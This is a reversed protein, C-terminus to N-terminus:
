GLLGARDATCTAANTAGVASASISTIATREFYPCRKDCHSSTERQGGSGRVGARSDHLVARLPLRCARTCRERACRSKSTKRLLAATRQRFGCSESQCLISWETVECKCDVHRVRDKEKLCASSIAGDSRQDPDCSAAPYTVNGMATAVDTDPKGTGSGRCPLEVCVCEKSEPRPWHKERQLVPLVLSRAVKRIGAHSSKLNGSRVSETQQGPSRLRGFTMAARRTVVGHARLNMQAGQVAASQERAFRVCM